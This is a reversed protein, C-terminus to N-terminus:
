REERSAIWHSRSGDDHELTLQEPWSEAIRYGASGELLAGLATDADMLATDACAMRTSALATVVLDGNAAYRYAGWMRNCGGEVVVAGDALAMAHVATGHPAVASIANGRPDDARQLTWRGVAALADPRGPADPAPGPQPAVCGGLLLALAGAAVSNFARKRHM